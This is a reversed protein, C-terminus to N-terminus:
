LVFNLFIHTIKYIEFFFFYGKSTTRGSASLPAVQGFGIKKSSITRNNLNVQQIKQLIFIPIFPKFEKLMAVMNAFSRQVANIESFMSKKKKFIKADLDMIEVRQATKKPIIQIKQTAFFNSFFSGQKITTNLSSFMCM